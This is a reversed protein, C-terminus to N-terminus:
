SICVKAPCHMGLFGNPFLVENLCCYSGSGSSENKTVGLTDNRKIDALCDHVYHLNLQKRDFARNAHIVNDEVILHLWQYFTALNRPNSRLFMIGSSPENLDSPFSQPFSTLYHEQCKRSEQAIVIDVDSHILYPVPDLVLGVDVDMYIVNYEFALVELIPVLTVLAGHSKFSPFNLAYDSHMRGTKFSTTKERILAFFLDNPFQLVIAGMSELEQIDSIIPQVIYVLLKIHYSQLFCLLNKLYLKYQAADETNSGMFSVVTIFITKSVTQRYLSVPLERQHQPSHKIDMPQYEDRYIGAVQRFIPLVYSRRSLMVSVIKDPIAPLSAVSEDDDTTSNSKQPTTTVIESSVIDELSSSEILPFKTVTYSLTKAQLHYSPKNNNVHHQTSSGSQQQIQRHHHHAPRHRNSATHSGETSSGSSSSSASSLASDVTLLVLFCLIIRFMKEPFFCNYYYPIGRTEAMGSARWWSKAAACAAAFFL